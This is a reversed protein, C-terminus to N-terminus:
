TKQAADLKTSTATAKDFIQNLKAQDESSLKPARKEIAALIAENQLTVGILMDRLRREAWTAERWGEHQQNWDYWSM